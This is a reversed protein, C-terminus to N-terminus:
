NQKLRPRFELEVGPKDNNYDFTFSENPMIPFSTLEGNNNANCQPCRNERPIRTKDFYTACWYCTDCLIFIPPPSLSLTKAVLHQSEINNVPDGKKSMQALDASLLVAGIDVVIIYSYSLLVFL